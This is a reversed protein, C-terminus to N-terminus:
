TDIKRWEDVGPVMGLSSGCDWKVHVTGIDDVAQVTGQCGPKLVKNYPDDMYVLEVRCGKPYQKKLTQVRWENMRQM